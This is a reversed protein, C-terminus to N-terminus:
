ATNQNSNDSQGKLYAPEGIGKKCEVTRRSETLMQEAGETKAKRGIGENSRSMKKARELSHNEHGKTKL